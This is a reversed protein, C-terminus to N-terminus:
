AKLRDRLARLEQDCIFGVRDSKIMAACWAHVETAPLDCQRLATLVVRLCAEIDETMLGEDSAELQYSGQDMLELALEMAARLQKLEILRQLNHQVERYAQADYDFNRNIDRADFATAEATAARTLRALEDPCAPLKVQARIRRCAARDARACESLIDILEEKSCRALAQRLRQAAKDRQAPRVTKKASRKAM